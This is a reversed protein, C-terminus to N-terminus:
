KLIIRGDARLDELHDKANLNETFKESRRHTNWAEVM